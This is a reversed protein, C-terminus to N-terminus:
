GPKTWHPPCSAARPGPGIRPRWLRGPSIWLRRRRAAARRRPAREARVRMALRPASSPKEGAHILANIRAWGAIQDDDYLGACSPTVRGEPSVALMETMLLGAGGLGRAGYHALHFDMARGKADAQYTLM